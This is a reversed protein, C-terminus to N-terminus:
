VKKELCQRARREDAATMGAATAMARAQELGVQAVYNRVMECTITSHARIGNEHRAVHHRQDTRHPKLPKADVPYATIAALLALLATNKVKTVGTLTVGGCRLRSDETPQISLFITGLVVGRTHFQREAL